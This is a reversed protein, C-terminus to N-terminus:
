YMMILMAIVMGVLIVVIILWIVLISTMPNEGSPIPPTSPPFNPNEEATGSWVTKNEYLAEYLEEMNQIRDEKRVALGKMLIEEHNPYIKIGLESPRKLPDEVTRSTSEEPKIGTIARYMTGCLAYVDTWPGQKGNRRYQEEPAYGVKLIVSMGDDSKSFDRSAGFDILKIKNDPLMIMNDPSIDRHILAQEHVLSLAKIVPKMLQFVTDPSMHTHKKEMEKLTQILSKGDLYEMVIYATQNEEFYDRVEVIGDTRCFKALIRAEQIYSEKGKQYYKQKSGTFPLVQNGSRNDRGTLTSPFYENIALPIQLNLDWGIYTIGFGGEGLVRGILYKGSLITGPPLQYIYSEYKKEDFGCHPCAGEKKEKMCGLCLLDLKEM